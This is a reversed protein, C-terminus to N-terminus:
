CEEVYLGILHEKNTKQFMTKAYASKGLYNDHTKSQLNASIDRLNKASILQKFEPNFVNRLMYWKGKQQMTESQIKGRELALSTLKGDKLFEAKLTKSIKAATEIYTTSLTGDEKLFPQKMTSAAKLSAIKDISNGDCDLASKTKRVKSLVGPIHIINGHGRMREETKSNAEIYSNQNTIRYMRARSMPVEDFLIIEKRFKSILENREIFIIEFDQKSILDVCSLRGNTIDKTHMAIFATKVSVHNLAIALLYHAYYHDYYTLEACNWKFEKLNEYQRFPLTKARPLIHHSSTQKKIKQEKSNSLCFDIYQELIVLDNICNLKAFQELILQKSM